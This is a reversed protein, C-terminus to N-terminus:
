RGLSMSNISHFTIEVDPSFRKWLKTINEKIKAIITKSYIFFQTETGFKQVVKTGEIWHDITRTFDSLFQVDAQLESDKEDKIIQLQKIFNGLLEDLRCKIKEM